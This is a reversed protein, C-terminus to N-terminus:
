VFISLTVSEGAILCPSTRFHPELLNRERDPHPADLLRERATFTLVSRARLMRRLRYIERAFM